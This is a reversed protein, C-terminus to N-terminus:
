RYAVGGIEPQCVLLELDEVIEGLSLSVHDMAILEQLVQPAVRLCGKRSRDVRRHRPKALLNLYVGVMWPENVRYMAVTVAQCWMTLGGDSRRYRAAAIRTSAHQPAQARVDAAGVRGTM